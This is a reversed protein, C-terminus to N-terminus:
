KKMFMKNNTQDNQYCLFINALLDLSTFILILPVYLM